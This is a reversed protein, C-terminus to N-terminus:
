VAIRVSADRLRDSPKVTVSWSWGSSTNQRKGTEGPWAGSVMM